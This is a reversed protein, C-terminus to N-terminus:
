WGNDLVYENGITIRARGYTLPTIFTMRGDALMRTWETFHGDEGITM